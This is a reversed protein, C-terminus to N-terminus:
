SKICKQSISDIQTQTERRLSILNKQYGPDQTANPKVAAGQIGHHEALQGLLKKEVIVKLVARQQDYAALAEQLPDTAAPVMSELLVLWRRNDRDPDIRKFVAEIQLTADTVDMEAGLKVIGDQLMELSETDDAYRQLLGQLRKGFEVRKQSAKEEASLSLNRTKEMVLDLTSRIEGM